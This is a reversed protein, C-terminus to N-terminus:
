APHGSPPRFSCHECVWWCRAHPHIDWPKKVSGVYSLHKQEDSLWLAAPSPPRFATGTLTFTEAFSLHSTCEVESFLDTHWSWAILLQSNGLDALHRVRPRRNRRLSLWDSRDLFNGRIPSRSQHPCHTFSPSRSFFFAASVARRGCRARGQKPGPCGFFTSRECFADAAWSTRRKWPM